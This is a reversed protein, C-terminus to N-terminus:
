ASKALTAAHELRSLVTPKGLVAMVGFLPPSVARGTVAVRTPHILEKPQLNSESIYGRISAEVSATDFASLRSLREKLELLRKAVGDPRLYQAVAEPEYAPEQFLFSHEEELDEFVRLRDQLLTAVQELWQRTHEPKLWGKAKVREAILGALKEVPLKKIYQGNLWDLKKQDFQAAAKRVKSLEFLQVLQEPPM